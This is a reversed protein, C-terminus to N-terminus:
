ASGLRSGFERVPSQLATVLRTLPANLLFLLKSLLEDRSPLDALETVQGESLIKGDLVGVKFGM